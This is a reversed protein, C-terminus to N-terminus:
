DGSLDVVKGHSNRQDTAMESFKRLRAEYADTDAVRGLISGDDDAWEWDQEIYDTLHKTNLFFAHQSPCDRDWILGVANRGSTVELAKWGGKLELTNAFRKQSKLSNAYARSIGNTTIIVDTDEGSAININDLAEEFLTDSPARLTGSNSNEYASWVPYSSPDVNFLTGTSDVITQLGTIEKQGAGGIAGGNGSRFIFAAGSTTSVAAGSITVTGSATNVATITRASAVSTPSAVTGIDVVMGIELQRLQAASASLLTVTTSSSTTGCTAIVGNSTGFRQRNYDRAVDRKLGTMESELARVFSGRDSKMAKMVPGSLQIRGYHNYVPVREETYGQNGATPLTGNEARSGVGSNRTVHLSLVARRGEVDETNKSVISDLVNANNLQERLPPLYFDKLASDANTLTLGAM